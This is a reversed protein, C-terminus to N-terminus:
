GECEINNKKMYNFFRVSNKKIKFEDLVKENLSKVDLYYKYNFNYEDKKIISYKVGTGGFKNNYLDINKIISNLTLEGIDDLAKYKKLITATNVRDSNDYFVNIVTEESLHPNNNKYKCVKSFDENKVCGSLMIILFLLLIKKM